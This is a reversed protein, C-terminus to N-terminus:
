EKRRIPEDDNLLFDMQRKRRKDKRAQKFHEVQAKSWKIERREAKLSKGNRQSEDASVDFYDGLKRNMRAHQTYSDVNRRSLDQFKGTKRNFNASFSLDPTDPPPAIDDTPHLDQAPPQSETSTVVRPNTWTNEGTIDNHFYYAQHAADWIAQWGDDKDADNAQDDAPLPEDPLPPDAPVPEDPLPPTSDANNEGEAVVAAGEENVREVYGREDEGRSDGSM